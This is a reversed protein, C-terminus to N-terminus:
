SVPDVRDPTDAPTDPTLALIPPPEPTPGALTTYQWGHADVNGALMLGAAGDAHADAEFLSMGAPVVLWRGAPDGAGAVALGGRRAVPQDVSVL